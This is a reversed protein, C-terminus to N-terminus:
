LSPFVRYLVGNDQGAVYLLNQGSHLVCDLYLPQEEHFVCCTFNDGVHLKANESLIVIFRNDGLYKFQCHRQPSWRADVIDGSKLDKSYLVNGSLFGSPTRCTTNMSALFNDWNRTGTYSCLANLTYHSPTRDAEIYGWLRKLTTSSISIHCEKWIASSLMDFESPCKPEKGFKSKVAEKLLELEKSGKLSM